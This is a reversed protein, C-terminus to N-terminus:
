VKEKALTESRLFYLLLTSLLPALPSTTPTSINGSQRGSLLSQLTELNFDPLKHLNYQSYPNNPDSLIRLWTDDGVPNTQSHAVFNMELAVRLRGEIAEDKMPENEPRAFDEDPKALRYRPEKGSAAYILEIVTNLTWNGPEKLLKCVRDARKHGLRKALTLQSVGSEVVAQLVM